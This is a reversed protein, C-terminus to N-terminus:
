RHVLLGSPQEPLRVLAGRSETADDGDQLQDIDKAHQLGTIIRSCQYTLLVRIGTGTAKDRGKVENSGTKIRKAYSVLHNSHRSHFLFCFCSRVLM